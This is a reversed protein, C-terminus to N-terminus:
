ETISELELELGGVWKACLNYIAAGIIGGIFGMVPYLIMMVLLPVFQAFQGESSALIAPILIFPIMILALFGYLIGLLKGTQLISFRKIRHTKM